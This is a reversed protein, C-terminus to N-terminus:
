RSYHDLYYEASWDHGVDCEDGRAIVMTHDAQLAVNRPVQGVVESVELADGHAFGYYHASFCVLGNAARQRTAVVNHEASM